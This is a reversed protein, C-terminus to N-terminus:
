SPQPWEISSYGTIYSSYSRLPQQTTCTDNNDNNYNPSKYTGRHWSLLCASNLSSFIILQEVLFLKRSVNKGCGHSIIYNQNAQSPRGASDKLIKVFSDCRYLSVCTSEKTKDPTICPLDEELFIDFFNYM